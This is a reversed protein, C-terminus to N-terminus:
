LNKEREFDRGSTKEEKEWVQGDQVIHKAVNTFHSPRMKTRKSSLISNSTSSKKIRQRQNASQLDVLRIGQNRQHMYSEQDEQYGLGRKKDEQYGLGRKNNGQSASASSPAITLSLFFYIKFLNVTQLWSIRIITTIESLFTSIL